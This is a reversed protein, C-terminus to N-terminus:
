ILSLPMLEISLNVNLRLKKELDAKIQRVIKLNSNSLKLILQRRYKGKLKEIPCNAPGLILLKEAYALQLYETLQQGAEQLKEPSADSLLIRVISLFPPYQHQEREALAHQYYGAYDHESAYGIVPHEPLYTQLIVQGAKTHRGARGSAQTLLQFTREEALYDPFFLGSEAQIIGVLTLDPLDFGKALLQTGVLIQAQERESDSIREWAQSVGHRTRSVDGDLRIVEAMPFAKSVEEELKQTGLGSQKIRKSQCEPCDPPIRQTHECQHCIMRDHSAHYILPVSCDDCFFAYGCDRCFVYSSHGRRNHLLIVQEKRTICQQIEQYLTRSFISNNGSQLEERLDIIKIAPLQAQNHRTELQYLSDLEEARYYTSVMPTASGEVLLINNLKALYRAITRADLYPYQGSRYSQDHEEDIIILGLNNLPAFIASRVGLVIVRDAELAQKLNGLRESDALNSHWLLIQEGPFRAKVRELLQVSLAIEPVLFIASQNNELAQEILEFYIETKGSGTIGRILAYEPQNNKSKALLAQYISDQEPNLAVKKSQSQEPQKQKSVKRVSKKQIIEKRCYGREILGKLAQNLNKKKIKGKLYKLALNKNKSSELLDIIQGELETLEAAKARETLYVREQFNDFLKLPLAARIITHLDTLYYKAAWQLLDFYREPFIRAYLIEEIAKIQHRIEPAETFLNIIIGRKYNKGFPIKVLSGCVLGEQMLHEPVSYYYRKQAQSDWDLDVLVEAYQSM